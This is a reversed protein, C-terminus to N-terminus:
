IFNFLYDSLYYLKDSVFTEFIPDSLKNSIIYYICHTTPTNKIFKSNYM